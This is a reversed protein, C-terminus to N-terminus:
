RAKEGDHARRVRGLGEFVHLVGDIMNISLLTLCLLECFFVAAFEKVVTALGDVLRREVLMTLGGDGACRNTM